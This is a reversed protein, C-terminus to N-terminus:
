ILRWPFGMPSDPALIIECAISFFAGVHVTSIYPSCTGPPGHLLSLQFSGISSRQDRCIKRSNSISGPWSELQDGYLFPPCELLTWLCREQGPDTLPFNAVQSPISFPLGQWWPASLPLTEFSWLIPPQDQSTWPRRMGWSLLVFPFLVPILRQLTGARHVLM